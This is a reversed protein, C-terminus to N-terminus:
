LFLLQEEKIKQLNPIIETDEKYVSLNLRMQELEYYSQIFYELNKDLDEKKWDFYVKTLDKLENRLKLFLQDMNTEEDVEILYSSILTTEEIVRLRKKAM